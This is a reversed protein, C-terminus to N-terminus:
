FFDVDKTYDIVLSLTHFSTNRFQFLFDWEDRDPLTFQVELVKIYCRSIYFFVNHRNYSASHRLHKYYVFISIKEMVTSSPHLNPTPKKIKIKKKSETKAKKPASNLSLSVCAHAQRLISTKITKLM